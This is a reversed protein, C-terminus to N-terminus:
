AAKRNHLGINGIAEWDNLEHNFIYMNGTVNDLFSDNADFGRDKLKIHRDKHICSGYGKGNVVRHSWKKLNTASLYALTFFGLGCAFVNKNTKLCM